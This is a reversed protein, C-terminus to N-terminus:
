ACRIKSFDKQSQLLAYNLAQEESMGLMHSELEQLLQSKPHSLGDQTTPAHYGIFPAATAASDTSPDRGEFGSDTATTGSAKTSASSVNQGKVCRQPKLALERMQAEVELQQAGM